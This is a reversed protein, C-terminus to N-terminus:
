LDEVVVMGRAGRFFGLSPSVIRLITIDRTDAEVRLISGEVIRGGLADVCAIVVNENSLISLYLKLVVKGSEHENQGYVEIKM